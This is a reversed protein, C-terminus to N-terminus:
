NCVERYVESILTPLDTGLATAVLALASVRPYPQQLWTSMKQPDWGIRKAIAAQTVGSAKIEEIRRRIHAMVLADLETFDREKINSM